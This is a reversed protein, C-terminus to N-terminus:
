NPPADLEMQIGWDLRPIVAKLNKKTRLLLTDAM